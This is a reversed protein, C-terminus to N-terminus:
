DVQIINTKSSNNGKCAKFLNVELMLFLAIAGLLLPPLFLYIDTLIKQGAMSIGIGGASAIFGCITIGIGITLSSRDAGTICAWAAFFATSYFGVMAGQFFISPIRWGEHKTFIALLIATCCLLVASIILMRKTGQKWYLTGALIGAGLHVLGSILWIKESSFLTPMKPPQNIITHFSATDGAVIAALTLILIWSPLIKDKQECAMPKPEPFLRGFVISLASASLLLIIGLKGITESDSLFGAILCSSFYIVGAAIGAGLGLFFGSMHFVFQRLIPVILIGLFIGLGVLSLIKNQSDTADMAAKGTMSLLATALAIVRPVLRMENENNDLFWGVLTAAICGAIMMGALGLFLNDSSMGNEQWKRLLAYQIFTVYFIFSCILPYLVM